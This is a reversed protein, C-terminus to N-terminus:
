QMMSKLLLCAYKEEKMCIRQFVDDLSSESISWRTVVGKKHLNMVTVLVHSLDVKEKAVTFSYVNFNEELFEMDKCIATRVFDTVDREPDALAVSFLLGKGYKNKLHISTGICQIGQSTMIAIRSCLADAEEMSHTTMLITMHKQM